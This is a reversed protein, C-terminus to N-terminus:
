LFARHGQLGQIALYWRQFSTGAASCDLLNESADLLGLFGEGGYHGYGVELPRDRFITAREAAPLLAFHDM